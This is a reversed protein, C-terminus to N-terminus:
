RKKKKKGFNSVQTMAKDGYYEAAIDALAEINRDIPSSIWDRRTRVPATIPSGRGVGLHIFIGHRRFSFSVRTAQGDTYKVKSRLSDALEGRGRLSLSNLQFLIAQQTTSAWKQVAANFEQINLLNDEM